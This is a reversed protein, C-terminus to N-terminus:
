PGNELRGGSPQDITALANTLVSPHRYGMGLVLGGIRVNQTECAMAAMCTTAEFCSGGGDIAPSEYFHDWVDAWDFGSSDAWRWLRRLEDVSLNQQGIHLGFRM